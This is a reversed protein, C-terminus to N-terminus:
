KLRCSSARLAFVERAAGYMVAQLEDPSRVAFELATM